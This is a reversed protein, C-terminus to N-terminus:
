YVDGCYNRYECDYCRGQYPTANPFREEKIMERITRISKAVFERMNETIDFQYITNQPILYIMGQHIPSSYKEELLMTYATLQYKHNLGPPNNTYKYEVPIVKEDTKIMMDLIGNLMLRQSYLRVRFFREGDDLGYRKLTRRTELKEILDHEEKGFKMKFTTKKRVPQCYTYYVIRPCYSHQKLDTVKLNVQAAM